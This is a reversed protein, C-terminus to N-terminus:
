KAVRLYKPAMLINGGGKINRDGDLAEFRLRIEQDEQLSNFNKYDIHTDCVVLTYSYGTADRIYLVVQREAPSTSARERRLRYVQWTGEHAKASKQHENLELKAPSDASSEQPRSSCAAMLLTLIITILSATLM